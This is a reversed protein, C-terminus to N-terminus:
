RSSGEGVGGWLPSPSVTSVQRVTAAHVEPASNFSHAYGAGRILGEGKHPLTPSPVSSWFEINMVM